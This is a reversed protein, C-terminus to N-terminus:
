FRADIGIEIRPGIAKTNYVELPEPPPVNADVEDDEDRIPEVEFPQPRELNVGGGLSIAV